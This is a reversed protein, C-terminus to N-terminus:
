QHIHYEYVIVFMGDASTVYGTVPTSDSDGAALTGRGKKAPIPDRTRPDLTQNARRQKPVLKNIDGALDSRFRPKAM